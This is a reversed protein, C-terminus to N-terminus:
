DLDASWDYGEKDGGREQEPKRPGRKLLDIGLLLDQLPEEGVHLSIGTLRPYCCSHICVRSDSSFTEDILPYPGKCKEFFGLTLLIMGGKSLQTMMRGM